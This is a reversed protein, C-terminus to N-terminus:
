PEGQTERSLYHVELNERPRGPDEINCLILTNSLASNLVMVM